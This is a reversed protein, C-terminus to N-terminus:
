TGNEEDVIMIKESEKVAIQNRRLRPLNHLYIEFNDLGQSWFVRMLRPALVYHTRYIPSVTDIDIYASHSSRTLDGDCIEM